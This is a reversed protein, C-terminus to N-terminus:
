CMTYGEFGPAHLTQGKKSEQKMGPQFFRQMKVLTNGEIKKISCLLYVFINM